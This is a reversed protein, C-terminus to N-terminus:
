QQYVVRRAEPASPQYGYGYTGGQEDDIIRPTVVMVLERKERTNNTSRFFQGILPLDGVVPWKSVSERIQDQIVGTLILTQGDRVRFEGTKLQRVVLNWLQYTVGNCITQDPSTPAKLTPNLKMTVFGNDDIRAVSVDVQLGAVEKSQDCSITGTPTTASNLKTTYTTGVGVSSSEGEQVLLTPDALLKASSSQIQASIFDFFQNQPYQFNKPVESLQTANTTTTVGSPPTSTAGQVQTQGPQAPNAYPGFGARPLGGPGYGGAYPTASNVPSQFTQAGGPLQFAGAGVLPSTNPAGTYLGPQGATDTAPPKLGGFNVLMQGNRNVIFTNGTKLAFSNDISKDNSLDVDVIQVRVAVQRKRLDLQKLYGEAITVLNPEGTITISSLRDDPSITLGRLPLAGYAKGDAEVTQISVSKGTLETKPGTSVSNGAQGVVEVPNVAIAKEELVQTRYFTAGQSMLFESARAPSVQNLRVTRSLLQRAFSPLKEGVILNRGSVKAQLGGLTLVMNVANEISENQFDVSIPNGAQASRANGSTGGSGSAGTESAPKAYFAVNYGGSRGLLMLVDRAPANRLSLRQLTGAGPLKVENGRMAITGIAMDGVPPASARKRLPPVFNEQPVRGPASLDYSGSSFQPLPQTAFTVRVSNGDSNVLPAPLNRGALSNVQLRWRNGSGDLVISEMGADPMALFRAGGALEGAQSSSIELTWGTDSRQQRIDPQAGMGEVRLQISSPLRLVKLDVRELAWVQAVPSLLATALAIPLLQRVPWRLEKPRVSVISKSQKWHGLGPVTEVAWSPV